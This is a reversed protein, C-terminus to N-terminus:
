EKCELIIFLKNIIYRFTVHRFTWRSQTLYKSSNVKKNERGGLLAHCTNPSSLMHAIPCRLIFSKSIQLQCGAM